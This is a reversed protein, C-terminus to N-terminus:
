KGKLKRLENFHETSMREREIRAKKKHEEFQIRLDELERIANLTVIRNKKFIRYGFFLLGAMILLLSWVLGNYINKNIGIGLLSISNKTRTVEALNDNSKQLVSQISDVKNQLLTNQLIIGNITQRATALTDLINKSVKQFMDERIARFNEYIRTKDELFQMQENITGKSFVEDLPQAQTKIIGAFAIVAVIFFKIFVSKM